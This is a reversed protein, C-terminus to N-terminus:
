RPEGHLVFAAWFFPDKMVPDQRLSLQANRLAAAPSLKERFIGAYVRGMLRASARDDVKWLSVLVRSAGAYLFGRTLNIIGEGNIQKGLGTECASLTVLEANLKLNYIEILRLFGDQAQGQRNLLSLAIGSLDPHENDLIGHTAFHLYQYQALEPGLAAAQDAEFGFAARSSAKEEDTLSAWIADAEQRAFRLRRLAALRSSLSESPVASRTIERAPVKSVGATETQKVQFRPDDREFVPDAFLALLKPGPGRQSERRRIMELVSASQLYVIEHDQLLLATKRKPLVAFPLFHLTGDAVILLRQRHLKGMVPGLIMRSLEEMAAPLQAKTKLAREFAERNTESERPLRATLLDIVRQSAQEIKSRCPLDYSDMSDRTVAWLISGEEGLMYELLLTDQTAADSNSKPQSGSASARAASPTHRERQSLASSRGFSIFLVIPLCFLQLYLRPQRKRVDGNM